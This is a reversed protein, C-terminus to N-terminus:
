SIVNNIHKKIFCYSNQLLITTLLSSVIKNNNLLNCYSKDDMLIHASSVKQTISYIQLQGFSWKQELAIPLNRRVIQMMRRNTWALREIDEYKLFQSTILILEAPLNSLM